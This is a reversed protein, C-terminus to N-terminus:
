RDGFFRKADDDFFLYGAVASYIIVPGLSDYWHVRHYAFALWVFGAIRVVAIIGILMRAWNAGNRLASGVLIVVVGFAIAVIAATTVDSSTAGITELLDDDNRQTLLVIGGVLDLIGGLIVLISLFGVGFPRREVQTNM